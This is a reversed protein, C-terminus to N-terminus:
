FTGGDVAVTWPVRNPLLVAHPKPPSNGRRSSQLNLSKSASAACLTGSNSSILLVGTRDITTTQVQYCFADLSPSGNKVPAQRVYRENVCTVCPTSSFNALFIYKTHQHLFRGRWDITLRVASRKFRCFPFWKEIAFMGVKWESVCLSTTSKKVIFYDKKRALLVM